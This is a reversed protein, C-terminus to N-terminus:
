KKKIVIIIALIAVVVIYIIIQIMLTTNFDSQLSKLKNIETTTQTSMNEIQSVLQQENIAGQGQLQSLIGKLQSLQNNSFTIQDCVGQQRKLENDIQSKLRLSTSFSQLFMTGFVIVAFEPAVLGVALGAIGTGITGYFIGKSGPNDM